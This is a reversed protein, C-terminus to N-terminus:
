NLFSKSPMEMGMLVCISVMPFFRIINEVPNDAIDLVLYRCPFCISHARLLVLNSGGACM